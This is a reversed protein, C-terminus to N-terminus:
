YKVDLETYVSKYQSNLCAAKSLDDSCLEGSNNIFTGVGSLNKSSKRAFTYFYKPNAKILSITENEVMLKREKYKETM